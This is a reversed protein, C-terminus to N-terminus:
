VGERLGKAEASHLQVLNGLLQIHQMSVLQCYAASLAGVKNLRDLTDVSAGQLKSEDVRFLGDPQYQGIPTKVQISWPVLLKEDNLAACMRATILRSAQIQELFSGISKVFPDLNGQDNFFRLSEAQLTAAESVDLPNTILGSADDVCIVLQGAQTTAMSFPYSRYIAPVYRGLWRGDSAVFLNVNNIVGQVAVPLFNKDKLIFAIPLSVCAASFEHAVLEAVAASAAFQYDKFRRWRKNSHTEHSLAVYSKKM